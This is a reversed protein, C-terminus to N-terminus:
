NELQPDEAVAAPSPSPAADNEAEARKKAYADVVTAFGRLMSTLVGAFGVMPGQMGALVQALLVDRSPLKALAKVEDISIVRGDVFGGRIKLNQHDKAFDSLVKAAAVEDTKHVAWANPGELLKGLPKLDGEAIVRRALTNKIVHYQVGAARCRAASRFRGRRRTGHLGDARRRHRRRPGQLVRGVERTKAETPMAGEQQTAATLSSTDLKVSPSMTSSIYASLMYRGRAASPKARMLENLLSHVNTSLAELSVLVQRGSRANGAKDVRYRSRAPRRRACRRSSTSRRRGLKPNPMLRARGLVRGLKGVTGMMDPDRHDRRRRDLRGPDESRSRRLRAHDAGAALAEKEKDGKAFVPVRVMKGTGSPLVVAGRVQQDAHRPDVGLRVVLDVTEDFKSKAMEKVM